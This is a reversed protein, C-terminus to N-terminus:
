AFFMFHCSRQELIKSLLFYLGKCDLDVIGVLERTLGNGLHLLKAEHADRNRLFVASLATVRQGIYHTDLLEGLYASGGRNDYGCVGRQAAIRDHGKTGFLLLLLIQNRKCLALEKTCETQRLGAGACVCLTNLGLCNKGFVSLFPDQVTGLAEDGVTLFCVDVDDNSIGVNDLVLSASLLLLEGRKDNLLVCRSEGESGLLVLHTDM